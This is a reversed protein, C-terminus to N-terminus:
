PPTLDGALGAAGAPGAHLRRIAIVWELAWRRLSAVFTSTEDMCAPSIACGRGGSVGILCSERTVHFQRMRAM